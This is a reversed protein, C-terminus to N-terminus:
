KQKEKDNAVTFDDVTMLAFLCKAVNHRYDPQIGTQTASRQSL